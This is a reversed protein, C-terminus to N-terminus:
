MYNVFLLCNKDFFTKIKICNKIYSSDIKLLSRQSSYSEIRSIIVIIECRTWGRWSVLPNIHLFAASRALVVNLRGISITATEYHRLIWLRAQKNSWNKLVAKGRLARSAFRSGRSREVRVSSSGRLRRGRSTTDSALWLWDIGDVIKWCCDSHTDRASLVDDREDVCGARKEASRDANRGGDRGCEAGATAPAAWRREAGGCHGTSPRNRVKASEREAVASRRRTEWSERADVRKRTGVVPKMFLHTGVKKNAKRAGRDAGRPVGRVVHSNLAAGNILFNNM